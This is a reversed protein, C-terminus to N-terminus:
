KSYRFPAAIIRFLLVLLREVPRAERPGAAQAEDMDEVAGLAELRDTGARRLEIRELVLTVDVGSGFCYRSAHLALILPGTFSPM